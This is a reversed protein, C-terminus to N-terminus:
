KMEEFLLEEISIDYLVSLNYAEMLSIAVAGTEKRGYLSRSLGMQNAVELQTMDRKKRIKALNEHKIM